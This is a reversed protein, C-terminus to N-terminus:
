EAGSTAKLRPLMKRIQEAQWLHRRDHAIVVHFAGLLSVKVRNNAPSTVRIRRLDLGEAKAALELLTVRTRRWSELVHDVNHEPAPKFVQPAKFRIKYPPELLHIFCSELWGLKFPGSGKIGSDIAAAIKSSYLEDVWNLHALCEAISWSGPVPRWNFQTHSLGAAAEAAKPLLERLQAVPIM